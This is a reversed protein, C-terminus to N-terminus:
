WGEVKEVGFIADIVVHNSQCPAGRAVQRKQLHMLAAGAVGADAGRHAPSYGNAKQDVGWLDTHILLAVEGM